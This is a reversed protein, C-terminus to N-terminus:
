FLEVKPVSGPDIGIEKLQDVCRAEANMNRACIELGQFALDSYLLRALHDESPFILERAEGLHGDLYGLLTDCRRGGFQSYLLYRYIQKDDGTWPTEFRHVITQNAHGRSREASPPSKTLIRV